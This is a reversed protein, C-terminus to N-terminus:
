RSKFHEIVTQPDFRVHRRLKLHPILKMNQRVWGEKVGLRKALQKTDVLERKEDASM